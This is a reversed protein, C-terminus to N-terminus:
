KAYYIKIAASIGLDTSLHVVKPVNVGDILVITMTNTAKRGLTQAKAILYHMKGPTVNLDIYPNNELVKRKSMIKANEVIWDGDYNLSIVDGDQEQIDYYYIRLKPSNVTITEKQFVVTDQEIRRPLEPETKTVRVEFSCTATNGASDTAVYSQRTSGLPFTDGSKLGEKQLLSAGSCNDSYAPDDFTFSVGKDEFKAKLDVDSPCTITPKEQDRVTIKFSCEAHKGSPHAASFGIISTGVPFNGGSREGNTQAIVADPMNGTLTAPKYSVPAFCDGPRANVTIDQQCRIGLDRPTDNVTVTFSCANTNGAADRAEYSVTTTGLAFLEGSGPGATRNLSAGSCNDSFLPDVYKVSTKAESSHARVTIDSPCDIKPREADRVTLTFKCNASKGSQDSARYAITTAGVPFAEGSGPGEVRQVDATGCTLNGTADPYQVVATCEGPDTNVSIPAPCQITPLNQGDVRVRFSCTATSGYESTAKYTVTTEGLPFMEEPELGSELTVNASGCDTSATPLPYNVPFGCKGPLATKTIDAPCQIAVSPTASKGSQDKHLNAIETTTLARAFIQLDDMTGCFFEMGGPMDRGIEMPMDNVTLNKSYSFTFASKGDIYATVEAGDYRVVYHFWQGLLLNEQAPETFDTNISVTNYGYTDDQMSQVRFQPSTPTEDAIDSKCVVTLWKRSPKTPHQEMNVWVSVTFALNPMQLSKSNPVTIYGSTGDFKLAGCPNGWRDEAATVGGIIAGDNKFQGADTADGNMLYHAIPASSRQASATIALLLLPIIFARKM